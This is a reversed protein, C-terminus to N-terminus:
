REDLHTAGVCRHIHGVVPVRQHRPGRVETVEPPAEDDLVRLVDAAGAELLLAEVRTGVAAVPPVVYEALPVLVHTDRPRMEGEQEAADSGDVLDHRVELLAEALAKVEIVALRRVVLTDDELHQRTPPQRDPVTEWARHGIGLAPVCFIGVGLAESSEFRARRLIQPGFM